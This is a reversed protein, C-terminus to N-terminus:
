LSYGYSVFFRDERQRNPFWHYACSLRIANDASSLEIGGTWYKETFNQVWGGMLAFSASLDFGIGTHYEMQDPFKLDSWEQVEAQFAATIKGAITRSIGASIRHSFLRSGPRTFNYWAIGMIWGSFPLLLGVDGTFYGRRGEDEWRENIYKFSLGIPVGIPAYFVAALQASVADGMGPPSSDKMRYIGFGVGRDAARHYKLYSFGWRAPWELDDFRLTGDMALRRHFYIGAPNYFVTAAQDPLVVGAGGMAQVRAGAPQSASLHATPIILFFGLLVRAAKM